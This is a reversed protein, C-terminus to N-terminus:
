NYYYPQLMIIIKSPYFDQVTGNKSLSHKQFCFVPCFPFSKFRVGATILHQCMLPTQSCKKLHPNGPCLSRGATSHQCSSAKRRPPHQKEGWSHLGPCYEPSVCHLCQGAWPSIGVKDVRTKLIDPQWSDETANRQWRRPSEPTGTVSGPNHERAMEQCITGRHETRAVHTQGQTGAPHSWHRPQPPRWHTRLAWCHWPLCLSLAWLGASAAGPQPSAGEGACPMSLLTPVIWPESPTGPTLLVLFTPM